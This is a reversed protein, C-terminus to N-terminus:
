LGFFARWDALTEEPVTSLFCEVAEADLRDAVQRVEQRHNALLFRIDNLDRDLRRDSFAGM